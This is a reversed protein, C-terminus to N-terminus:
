LFSFIKRKVENDRYIKNHGLGKTVMFEINPYGMTIIEKANAIPTILDHEDHIWLISASVHKLARKVSFYAPWHGSLRHIIRDFEKRVKDNLQLFQFFGDIAATTESAPAVLVARTKADHPRKELYMVLAFGGFSHCLYSDIHGYLKEVKSIMEVYDLLTVQKGDSSGHAPADFALVEYGAKVARSIHHDFKRCSSEFGHLILLRKGADQNWRYGRIKKGQQLFQLKEGKEFIEPFPKTFKQQPTCFIEYAKEAAKAPSVVSIMNLRARVYGIAIKQALKM